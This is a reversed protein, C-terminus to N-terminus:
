GTTVTKKMASSGGMETGALKLMQTLLLCVFPKEAELSRRTTEKVYM